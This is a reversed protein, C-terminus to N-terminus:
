KPIHLCKPRRKEGVLDIYCIEYRFTLVKKFKNNLSKMESEMYIYPLLSMESNVGGFIKIIM